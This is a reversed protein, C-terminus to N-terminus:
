GSEGLFEKRLSKDHASGHSKHRTDVKSLPLRLPYATINNLSKYCKGPGMVEFLLRRYFGLHNETVAICLDNIDLTKVTTWVAKSLKLWLGQDSKSNGHISVLTSAETIKREQRKLNTIEEHFVREMPLGKPSDIILRAAGIIHDYRLAVIHITEKLEDWEDSMFGCPNESIYGKNLYNEYRLKYIEELEHIGNAPRIVIINSECM